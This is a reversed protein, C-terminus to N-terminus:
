KRIVQEVKLIWLSIYHPRFVPEGDDGPSLEHLTDKLVFLRISLRSTTNELLGNRRCFCSIPLWSAGVIAGCKPSTSLKRMSSPPRKISALCVHSQLVAGARRPCSKFARLPRWADSKGRKGNSNRKLVPSPM